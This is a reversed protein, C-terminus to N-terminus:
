DKWYTQRVLERYEPEVYDNWIADPDNIHADCDFVPVQKTVRAHGNTGDM